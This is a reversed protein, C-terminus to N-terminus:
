YVLKSENSLRLIIEKTKNGWVKTIKIYRFQDTLCEGKVCRPVGKGWGLLFFIMVM